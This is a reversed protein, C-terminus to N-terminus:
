KKFYKSNCAKFTIGIHYEMDIIHNISTKYYNKARFEHVQLNSLTSSLMDAQQTSNARPLLHDGSLWFALHRDGGSCPSPHGTGDGYITGTHKNRHKTVDQKTNIRHM